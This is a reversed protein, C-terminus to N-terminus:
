AAARAQARKVIRAWADAFAGLEELKTNWGFSVRIASAALSPDIGMATLVHSQAVKGSSCASGASVAFGDLDLAIVMNESPVGQAAVCVTNPLRAANEGFVVANPMSAKLRRELDDRWAANLPARKAAEAAAGFGAIAAVNETGARRGLEQGGGRTQSAFPVGQRV